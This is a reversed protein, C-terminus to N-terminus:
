KFRIAKVPSIRTVLWSPFILFLLIVVLAVANLALVSFLNLEIPAESLYYNEESLKILGYNEQLLCFGIGALNGFFLGLLIIYAANYLFVKRISWDKQGLSKLVGIMNTRELILIMLATVMNILGVVLMLALIVVENIDQLALWDFIAPYKKRISECYLEGPLVEMYIYDSFVEMDQLNDVAVEFGGVMDPAWDLLEQVNRIDVLAFKRDYEELGTKYIGTVIFRKALAEGDRVYYFIFKDGVKLELRVATQKSLIIGDGVSDPLELRNGEVLFKDFFSWDFDKGIGKLIIGEIEKKTKIIGPKLAFVQIHRIGGKTTREVQWPMEMGLIENTEYYAIPELTDLSPYFPQNISIPVSEGTTRNIQTNTIHIHGWFGFIKEGIQHKFGSIVATSVIMVALSLAVAVIAIRVILGTFSQRNNLAVKKAIFYPLNM